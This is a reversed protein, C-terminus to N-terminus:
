MDPLWRSQPRPGNASSAAKPVYTRFTLSFAMAINLSGNLEHKLPSYSNLNYRNAPDSVVSIAEARPSRSHVKPM